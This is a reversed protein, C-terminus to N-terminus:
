DSATRRVSSTTCCAAGDTAVTSKSPSDPVPLSSRARCIWSCLARAPRGNTGALQAAMGSLMRSPPAAARMSRVASRLSPPLAIRASEGSLTGPSRGRGAQPLGAHEM